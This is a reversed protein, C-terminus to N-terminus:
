INSNKIAKETYKHKMEYSILNFIIDVIENSNEKPIKRNKLYNMIKNLIIKLNNKDLNNANKYIQKIDDLNIYKEYKKLKEMYKEYQNKYILNTQMLEDKNMEDIRKLEKKNKNM